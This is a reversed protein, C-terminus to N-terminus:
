RGFASGITPAYPNPEPITPYIYGDSSHMIEMSPEYGLAKFMNRWYHADLDSPQQQQQQQHMGQPTPQYGPLVDRSSDLYYGPPSTPTPPSRMHPSVPYHQVIPQETLHITSPHLPQPQPQQLQQQQQQQGQPFGSTKTNRSPAQQRDRAVLSRLFRSHYSASGSAPSLLSADHYAGAAQSIVSFIKQTADPPLGIQDVGSRLLKLLFVACYASMITISDQGYPLVSMAAFDKTIIQLNELASTYCASLATPSLALGSGKRLYPQVGLSNLFLRVYLRFFNLFAHHFSQGSARQMQQHWFEQWQTLKLNCNRLLVEYNVDSQLSSSSTSKHLCFVDTTEMTEAAIRRLQVFSALIVDEPRIPNGGAEHWTASYKVLDDEPLMWQRGTQMSLSRDHVWLVLYTRERNRRERMHFETENPPPTALYRNLGLEVAMRCAYGIYSWTRTDDPERWYVLCAFAQVVEVSKWGEAFARVALDNALKQCPRYIEPKFFKAGAMLLTTFLLPCRSRVYHVSHLAPDFLNIFPNLRLFVLDFLVTAQNEDM